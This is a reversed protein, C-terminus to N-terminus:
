PSSIRYFRMPTNTTPDIIVRQPTTLLFNTLNTWTNAQLTVSYQVTYNRNTAGNLTFEFTGDVRLRPATIFFDEGTSLSLEAAASTATGAINTVYCAYFGEHEAHAEAITYTAANAGPIDIGDKRWQYYLPATGTASVTFSVMAGDAATVDDPDGTITPPVLVNLVAVLSTTAGVNNSVVVTYSGAQAPQVNNLLLQASDEDDLPAGNFRWQYRLPATGSATVTFQINTGAVVTRSVPHVDIVPPMLVTLTAAQSPVIGASNSVVVRYSGADVLQANLIELTASNAGPIDVLGRQWQYSLPVSGSATVAFTASQGLAVTRNTPQGSIIPAVATGQANTAGATPPEAKWNLPENAYLAPSTRQLSAGGGDAALPWPAAAGYVVRDVLIQPIHNFEWDHVTPPGPRYLALEEPGNNLRGSYPGAIAGNTGYKGRFNSLAVANVNPDFNVLLLYGHAPITLGALSIDVGGRLTWANTPRDTDFLPVPSGTINYLEIYEEAALENATGGAVPHYMVENIIVPGIRPYSNTAGTGTRFQEVTAPNDVGFTRQSMAVFDAGISTVFRGFSVGLEAGGFTAQARYGTLNGNADAQSLYATDGRASFLIPAGPSPNFSNEYVVHFAGPALTVGNTIRVNNFKNESNADSLYWGSIDVPVGGANHIEVANELPTFAYPLVENIVIGPLPLYNSADPTPTAPFSVVNTGGDPLRGQSVSAAQAGFSVTDIITLNTNYLRIADGEGDLSFNVHNPGASLDGDAIFQAWGGGAIYSLPAIRNSNTGPLSLLDTLYLGSLSVPASNTNHLEFWDPEASASAMWENIRLDAPSGLAMANLNTAGPTPSTLLSWQGNKLGISRNPVQLGYEISSVPQGQANFLYVGGGSGSLAFGSNLAGFYSPARDSDCWIALTRGTDVITGPAFVFKIEQSDDSLGMGGLDVPAATGNYIEVFDPANGWPSLSVGNNRALLENLVPGTYNIVYNSAGPSASGPFTVITATGDPLRGQSIGQVQAGYTVRQLEAGANDYLVIAGASGPLRFDLHDAGDNEDALLQVFGRPAIFSLSRMQFLANSTGLYMNRLSVPSTASSNYLEVWDDAGPAADALWENISIATAPALSAATNAAAPTPTTLTWAGSLRGISYDAAQPGFSIADVRIGANDYLFVSDGNRGLAFGSHLGSTTNTTADCWVVLFGNSPVITGPPFVFKLPNGDDTLSWGSLNISADSTNAIEIWDPFTGEHNVASPNDAMVENLVISSSPPASNPSGPTGNQGSSARWNAADDPDGGPSIMELSFGGGDAGTAWGNEDDYTVSVVTRGLHDLVSITEGGNALSGSFWGAVPVGPYRTHFANTNGNNGLVIRQGANLTYGFPFILMTGDDDTVTYSSLNLPLPGANQLEIFEYFNGGIPNYMIETIAIPVTLTGVTFAAENLASWNTGALMRAKVIMSEGLILPGSYVRALPSITGSGYVRPDTGNTTYYITNTASMTLAFGPAVRGGHQSFTPATNSPYLFAARLQALVIGTRNPFYNTVMRNNEPVWHAERTYLQYVGESSNHVDRRYDGWRATEGVIAKDMINQFKQWRTTSADPLLAGGPSVMHKQVRDAFDLRYQFINTLKGHLGSPYNAGPIGSARNVNTDLLICEGDWPLYRFTGEPGSVRKRIAAWNKNGAAETAWDHHGMYFHLLMYDIFEPMPLYQHYANYQEITAPMPLARMANYATATGNKITGQDIVDYDDGSGGLVAKGFSESPDESIDYTGWYLGNLYLHVFRNHSALGGMDRRAQKMWADRTRTARTRQFAGLGQGATDSWHRWSSNFDARLLIDDFEEVPSDEFLKYELSTPGYDDRFKLKFGHKPNKVPNRSANGFLDVGCTTTFATTGDPLIMEVSCPRTNNPKGPAGTEDASRQYIGTVGFLDEVKMVISVVPLELLGDKLRQLKVPDIPSGPNLPDTRLPDQDMEYDAPVLGPVTSGPSFVTSGVDPLNLGWNTPFGAPYVPQVVVQDLFLYTHTSVSSPLMNTGFTAVRFATTNSIVLSGPFVPSTGLPESGDTTYRLVAGPLDSSAVLTFPERFYGRSVNVTPMPAVDTITSTGNAAGPTPASFFRWTNSGVLGYSYDNRQEPYEPVFESMMQRPSDANFLALYEGNPNLGFSTHLRNTGGVTKRDLSTAYVVLYAGPALTVDPFTWLGPENINDTLSWGLLRVSNSGRNFLEIWDSTNGFEDIDLTGATGNTIANAACFENIIVNGTFLVPNLTVTWSAGVFANPSAANDRINHSPSWALSVAGTGPQPFQFIYPGAGSGFASQAAAGNVLLDGADVGSVPESFLVEVQTLSAVLSSAAPTRSVLTPAVTDVITYAWVNEAEIMRVGTNDVILHNPDWTIQVNTGIPSPFTFTYTTNSGTVETSGQGNILLDEVAVGTVPRNFEVTVQTLGSVVAGFPPIASIVRPAEIVNSFNWVVNTGAFRNGSRDRINASADWAVTVAGEAPLLFRYTYTAPANSVVATAFQGNIRLDTPRANTVPEDFTVTLESFNTAVSGPAPAVVEVVPPTLDAYTISIEPNFHFDADFIRVNFAQYAVVNTGNRLINTFSNHSFWTGAFSTINANTYYPLFSNISGFMNRRQVEVGNIWLLYGDDAFARNSLTIANDANTLVFTSRLFICTYNSLMDSLLTGSEPSYTGGFYFPADSTEWTSDDFTNTRWETGAPGSAENTGRFLRWSSNTQIVLEARVSGATLALLLIWFLTPILRVPSLDEERRM